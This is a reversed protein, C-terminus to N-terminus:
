LIDSFPATRGSVTGIVSSYTSHEAIKQPLRGLPKGNVLL